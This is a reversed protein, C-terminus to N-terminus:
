LSSACLSNCQKLIRESTIEKALIIREKIIDRPNTLPQIKKPVVSPSNPKLDVLSINQSIKNLSNMIINTREEARKEM